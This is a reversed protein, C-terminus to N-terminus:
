LRNYVYLLAFLYIANFIMMNVLAKKLGARPNKARAARAPIVISAVLISLLLLKKM